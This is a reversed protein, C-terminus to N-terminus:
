RIPIFGYRSLISQGDQSLLLDIFDQALRSHPNDILPAIVFSARVNMEPPIELYGVQDAMAASIDSTYVIGADAEGLAVKSLVARANEEYSSVNKLVQGKYESGLASDQSAKDLFELSYGGIPTSADALALKLGPTALDQLTQVGAPNDKPYIVALQNSAFQKVQRPEVRGVQIAAQMKKEDASAFVDAPAGLAIQQALQQSGAFNFSVKVGPHEVQYKNGIETFADVLTAAAFVTLSSGESPSAACAALLLTSLLCATLLWAALRGRTYSQIM